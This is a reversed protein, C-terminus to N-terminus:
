NFTYILLDVWEQGLTKLQTYQLWKIVSVFCGSISADSKFELIQKEMIDTDILM